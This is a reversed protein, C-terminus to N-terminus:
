RRLPRVGLLEDEPEPDRGTTTEVAGPRDEEASPSGPHAIRQGANVDGASVDGASVDGASIKGYVDDDFTMIARRAVLLRHVVAVLMVSAGAVTYIMLRQRDASDVQRLQVAALAIWSMALFYSLLTQAVCARWASAASTGAATSWQAQSRFWRRLAAPGGHEIALRTTFGLERLRQSRWTMVGGLALGVLLPFMAVATLDLWPLAGAAPEGLERKAQAVRGVIESYSEVSRDAAAELEAILRPRRIEDAIAATLGLEIEGNAARAWWYPQAPPEFRLERAKRSLATLSGALSQWRSRAEPFRSRLRPLASAATDLRAELRPLADDKWARELDFFCPGTILGEVLPALAALLEDPTRADRLDAIRDPDNLVFAQATSDLEEPPPTAAGTAEAGAESDEAGGAEAAEAAARAAIQRRTADLRALDAGLDEILRELAPAVMSSTEQRVAELAGRLEGLSSEVAALRTRQLSTESELRSGAIFPTIALVHTLALALVTLYAWHSSGAFNDRARLLLSHFSRSAMAYPAGPAGPSQGLASKPNCIDAELGSENRASACGARVWASLETVRRKAPVPTFRVERSELGPAAQGPGGTRSVYEDASCSQNM